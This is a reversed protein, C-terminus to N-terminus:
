NYYLEYGLFIKVNPLTKKIINYSDDDLFSQRVHPLVIFAVKGISLKNLLDLFKGKDSIVPVSTSIQRYEQISNDFYFYPIDITSHSNLIINYETSVNFFLDPMTEYTSQLITYGQLNTKMFAYLGADDEYHLENPLYPYATIFNKPFSLPLSALILIIILYKELKADCSQFIKEFSIFAILIFVPFFYLLGRLIQLDNSSILYIFVQAAGILTLIKTSLNHIKNIVLLSIVFLISLTLNFNIFFDKISIHSTNDLSGNFLFDLRNQIIPFLIIFFSVLITLAIFWIQRKSFISNYFIKKIVLNNLFTSRHAQLTIVTGILTSLAILYEGPDFSLFLSIANVIFLLVVCTKFKYTFNRENIYANLKIFLWIIFLIFFEYFSYMRVFWQNFIIVPSLTYTILALIQTVKNTFIKKSILYFFIFSFLGVFAPVTKAVYLSVGFLKFFLAVLLSVYAGRIYGFSSDTTTISTFHFHKILSVGNTIAQWDDSVSIPAHVIFFIKTGVFIALFILFTKNSILKIPYKTEYNKQLKKSNIIFFGFIISYVFLLITFLDATKQFYENILLAVITLIFVYQFYKKNHIKFIKKSRNILLIIVLFILVVIIKEPYNIDLHLKFWQIINPFFNIALFLTTLVSLSLSLLIPM